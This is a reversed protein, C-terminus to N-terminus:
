RHRIFWLLAIGLGTAGLVKLWPFKPPTEFAIPSPANGRASPGTSEYVARYRRKWEDLESLTGSAFWRDLTSISDYWAKYSDLENKTAAEGSAALATFAQLMTDARRQVGSPTVIELGIQETKGMSFHHRNHNRNRRYFL